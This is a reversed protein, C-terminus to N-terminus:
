SDSRDKRIWEEMRIANKQKFTAKNPDIKETNEKKDVQKVVKKNPTKTNVNQGSQKQMGVMAMTALVYVIFYIALSWFMIQGSENDAYRWDYMFIVKKIPHGEFAFYLSTLSFVISYVGLDFFKKFNGGFFHGALAIGLFAFAWVDYYVYLPITLLFDRFIKNKMGIIVFPLLLSLMVIAFPNMLLLAPGALLLPLIVIPPLQFIKEWFSSKENHITNKREEGNSNQTSKVNETTEM